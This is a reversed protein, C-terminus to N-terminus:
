FIYNDKILEIAKVRSNKGSNYSGAIITVPKLEFEQYNKFARINKFGIKKTMVKKNSIECLFSILICDKQM